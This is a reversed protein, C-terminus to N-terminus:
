ATIPCRAGPIIGPPPSPFGSTAPTVRSSAARAARARGRRPRLDQRAGHQGPLRRAEDPRDARRRLPARDRSAAARQDDGRRLRGGAVRGNPPVHRGTGARGRGSAPPSRHLAPRRRVAEAAAAGGLRHPRRRRHRGAHGGPRVLAVRLRRHELRGRGGVPLLPHLQARALPDDDGRARVRQHQQSYTVEAVTIGREIAAQLDVHDSGIGATM